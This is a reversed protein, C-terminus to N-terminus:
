QKLLEKFEPISELTEKIVHFTPRSSQDPQLISAILEKFPGEDMKERRPKWANVTPETSDPVAINFHWDFLNQVLRGFALVEIHEFMAASDADGRNYVFSAGWDSLRAVFEGDRLVNHLYVDSHSVGISHIYDLVSAINWVALIVKERKLNASHAAPGEDRTVTDFNPVKGMPYTGKILNMVMGKYVGDDGESPIVGIASIAKPYNILGNIAAEDAPNGDSGKSKARFIKVAVDKGDYKGQYVTGSAGRGLIKSQMQIETEKIVKEIKVPPKSMPNGSLSIWALKSLTLVEKPMSSIDNNALRILELNKCKGLEPPVININNHSLMLKRLLKAEGINPDITHINNNTLILWVLSSVPLTSSSLEQLSNGRLSLVRLNNLKGIVKPIYEFENESLFLIELSSLVSMEDPLDTLTNNGLDIKKLSTFRSWLESDAPLNVHQCGKLNLEKLKSIQWLPYTALDCKDLKVFDSSKRQLHISRRSWVFFSFGSILAICIVIAKTWEVVPRRKEDGARLRPAGMQTRPVPRRRLSMLSEEEHFLSPSEEGDTM